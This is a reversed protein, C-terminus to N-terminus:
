PKAAQSWQSYGNAAGACCYFCSSQRHKAKAAMDSGLHLRGTIHWFAAFYGHRDFWDLMRSREACYVPLESEENDPTSMSEGAEPIEAADVMLDM